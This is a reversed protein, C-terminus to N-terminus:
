SEHERSRRVLTLAPPEDDMAAEHPEGQASGSTELKGFRRSGLAALVLGVAGVVLLLAPGLPPERAPESAAALRGAPVRKGIEPGAAGM